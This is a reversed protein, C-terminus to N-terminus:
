KKLSFGLRHSDPDGYQSRSGAHRRQGAVRTRKQQLGGPLVQEEVATGADHAPQQFGTDGNEVNRMDEEAMKMRIVGTFQCGEQEGQLVRGRVTLM